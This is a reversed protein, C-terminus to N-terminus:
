FGTPSASSLGCFIIGLDQFRFSVRQKSESIAQSSTVGKNLQQEKPNPIYMITIRHRSWWQMKSVSLNNRVKVSRSISLFQAVPQSM